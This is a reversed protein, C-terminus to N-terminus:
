FLCVNNHHVALHSLRIKVILDSNNFTYQQLVTMNMVLLPSGQDRPVFEECKGNSSASRVTILINETDYLKCDAFKCDTIQM